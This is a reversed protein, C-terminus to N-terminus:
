ARRVLADPNYGHRRCIQRASTGGVCFKESVKAALPIGGRKAARNSEQRLWRRMLEDDAHFCHRDAGDLQVSAAADPKVM